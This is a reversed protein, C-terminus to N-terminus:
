GDSHSDSDGDSVSRSFLAVWTCLSCACCISGFVALFVGFMYYREYLESSPEVISVMTENKNSYCLVTDNVKLSRFPEITIDYAPTTMLSKYTGTMGAHTSFSSAAEDQDRIRSSEHLLSMVKNNQHEVIVQEENLHQWHMGSMVRDSRRREENRSQFKRTQNFGVRFYCVRTYKIVFCNQWIAEIRCGGPIEVTIANVDVISTPGDRIYGFYLGCLVLMPIGISAFFIMGAFCFIVKNRFETKSPTTHQYLTNPFLLTFSSYQSSRHSSYNAEEEENNSDNRQHHDDHSSILDINTNQHHHGSSSGEERVRVSFRVRRSGGGSRTRGISEEHHHNNDSSSPTQPHDLPHHVHQDNNTTPTTQTQATNLIMSNALESPNFAGSGFFM